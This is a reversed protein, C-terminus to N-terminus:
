SALYNSQSHVRLLYFISAKGVPMAGETSSLTLKNSQSLHCSWLFSNFVLCQISNQLNVSIAGSSLTLQKDLIACRLLLTPYQLNVSFAATYPQTLCLFSLHYRKISFTLYVTTHQILSCNHSIPNLISPQRPHSRHLLPNSTVLAGSTGGQRM